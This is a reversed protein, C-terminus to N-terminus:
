NYASLDARVAEVSRNYNPYLSDCYEVNDWIVRKGGKRNTRLDKIAKREQKTPRNFKAM